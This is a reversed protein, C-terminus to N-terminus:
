ETPFATIKCIHKISTESISCVNQVFVYHYGVEKSVQKLTMQGLSLNGFLVCFFIFANSFIVRFVHLYRYVTWNFIWLFTAPLSFDLSQETPKFFCPSSRTKSGSMTAVYTFAIYIFRPQTLSRTCIRHSVRRTQDM